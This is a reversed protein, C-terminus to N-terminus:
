RLDVIEVDPYQKADFSFVKDELNQQSKLNHIIVTNEYGSDDYMVLKVPMNTIKDIYVILRKVSSKKVEPLLEVVLATKGEIKEEGKYTLKFGKKYISFLVSPSISQLEDASPTTINVEETEKIYVWQTTGDFWNTMEPIDIKFKEGKMWVRGDYSYVINSKLEKSNLIFGATIGGASNFKSAANDLISRANQAMSMTILTSFLFLLITLRLKM